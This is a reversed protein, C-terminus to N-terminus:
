RRDERLPVYRVVERVERARGRFRALLRECFRALRDVVDLSDLHVLREGGDREVRHLHEAGVGLPRVDVAAGDRETM